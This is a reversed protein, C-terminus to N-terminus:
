RRLLMPPDHRLAYSCSLVSCLSNPLTMVICNSLSHWCWFLSCTSSPVPTACADSSPCLIKLGPWIPIIKMTGDYSPFLCKIESCVRGQILAVNCDWFFFWCRVQSYVRGQILALTGDWSPFRLRMESCVRGQILAVSGDWSSFWCWFESSVRGQILAVTGDWTPFWRRLESCVRCLISVTEYLIDGDPDQTCEVNSPHWLAMYSLHVVCYRIGQILCRLSFQTSQDGARRLVRYM